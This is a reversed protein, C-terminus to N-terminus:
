DKTQGTIPEDDSDIRGRKKFINDLVVIANDVLMGVGLALGSLTIVNMTLKSFYMLAFTLFLAIPISSAIIFVLRLHM